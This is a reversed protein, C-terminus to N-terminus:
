IANPHLRNALGFRFRNPIKWNRAILKVFRFGTQHIWAFQNPSPKTSRVLIAFPSAM